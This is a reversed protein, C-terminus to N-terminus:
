KGLKNRSVGMQVLRALYHFALNLFKTAISGLEVGNGNVITNCHSVVSHEIRKGRAIDNGVTNLIHAVSM